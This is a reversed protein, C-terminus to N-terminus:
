LVLPSDINQHGGFLLFLFFIYFFFLFLGGSGERGEGWSGEGWDWMLIGEAGAGFEDPNRKQPGLIMEKSIAALWSEEQPAGNWQGNEEHPCGLPVGCRHPAPPLPAPLLPPLPRPIRKKKNEKNTKNEKNNPLCWFISIGNTKYAKKLFFAGFVHYQSVWFWQNKM